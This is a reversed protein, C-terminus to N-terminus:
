VTEDFVLPKRQKDRQRLFRGIQGAQGKPPGTYQVWWGEAQTKSSIYHYNIIDINPDLFYAEDDNRMRPGAEKDKVEFRFHANVAVLHKKPLNKETQRVVGAM